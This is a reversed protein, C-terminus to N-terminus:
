IPRVASNISLDEALDGPLPYEKAVIKHFTRKAVSLLDNHCDITIAADASFLM